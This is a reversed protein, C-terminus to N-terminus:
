TPRKGLIAEGIRIVTAGEQIAVEYDMSMGMSLESLRARPYANALREQFERLRRYYPRAVESDLAYPAITMLGCIILNPLLLLKSVQEILELWHTDAWAPFGFKSQEGSVNLEILVPLRRNLEGSFNNLRRALKISDVSHIWDFNECALRAKRSQVHGIMHWSLDDRDAFAKIKPIADEVYNEGLNRAGAAIVAHVKELPQQKTVVVLRIRSPERGAVRSAREIGELVRQYNKYITEIQLSLEISM